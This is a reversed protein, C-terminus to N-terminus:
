GLYVDYRTTKGLVQHSFHPEIPDGKIGRKVVLRQGTKLLSKLHGFVSSADKDPGLRQRFIQMAKKPLAKKRQGEFMPDFYITSIDLPVESISIADTWNLEFRGLAQVLDDDGHNLGRFVADKVLLFNVLDREFAKVSVGLFLALSTDKGQGCTTDLIKIERGNKKAPVLARYFPQKRLSQNHLTKQHYRWIQSFDVSFSQKSDNPSLLTLAGNRVQLLPGLGEKKLRQVDDTYANLHDPLQIELRREKEALCRM